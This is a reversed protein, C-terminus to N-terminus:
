LDLLTRSKEKYWKFYYKSKYDRWEGIDYDPTFCEYNIEGCYTTDDIYEFGLRGKYNGYSTHRLFQYVIRIKKSSSTDGCENTIWSSKPYIWGEAGYLFPKGNRNISYNFPADQQIKNIKEKPEENILIEYNNSAESKNSKESVCGFLLPLCLLILLLKKM